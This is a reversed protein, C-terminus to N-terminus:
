WFCISCLIYGFAGLSNMFATIPTQIKRPLLEMLYVYGINSRLSSAMGIIFIATSMVALSKTFLMTGTCIVNIFIGFWFLYKRGYKDGFSPLWLLTTCWGIFFWSGLASVKWQEM